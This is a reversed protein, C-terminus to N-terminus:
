HGSLISHLVSFDAFTYCGRVKLKNVPTPNSDLVALSLQGQTEFGRAGRHGDDASVWEMREFVARFHPRNLLSNGLYHFIFYPYRKTSWLPKLTWLSALFGSNSSLRVLIAWAKGPGSRYRPDGRHIRPIAFFAELDKRLAIVFKDGQKAAILWNSFKRDPGPRRFLFLGAEGSVAALWDLLPRTLFVSADLWVGGYRELLALRILDSQHQVPLEEFRPPFDQPDLYGGLMDKSLVVIQASGAFKRWSAVCLRVIEPANELGSDWYSWIPGPRTKDM